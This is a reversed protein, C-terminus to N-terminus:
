VMVEDSLSSCIPAFELTNIIVLLSSSTLTAPQRASQLSSRSHEARHHLKTCGLLSDRGIRLALYVVLGSTKKDDKRSKLVTTEKPVESNDAQQM